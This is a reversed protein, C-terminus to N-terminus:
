CVRFFCFFKLLNQCLKKQMYSTYKTCYGAKKYSECKSVALVDELDVEGCTKACNSAMYSKYNPNTCYGKKKWKACDKAPRIDSKTSAGSTSSAYYYVDYAGIPLNDFYVSGIKQSSSCKTKGCTYLRRFYDAGSGGQVYLGIWPESYDKLTSFSVQVREGTEYVSKSTKLQGKIADAPDYCYDHDSSSKVYGKSACGPVVEKSSTRQFCKLGSKCDSDKDCDGECKNCQKSSSCGNAGKDVVKQGGTGGTDGTAPCKYMSKLGVADLVSLGKATGIINQWKPDKTKITVAGQYIPFSVPGYHMLSLYDYKTVSADVPKKWFNNM